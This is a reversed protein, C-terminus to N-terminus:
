HFRATARTRSTASATVADRTPDSRIPRSTRIAAARAMTCSPATARTIAATRSRVQAEHQERDAHEGDGDDRGGAADLGPGVPPPDGDRARPRADDGHQGDDERQLRRREGARRDDGDAPDDDAARHRSVREGGAAAELRQPRISTLDFGAQREAQGARAHDRHHDGAVCGLRDERRDVLGAGDAQDGEGAREDAHRPPPEAASAAVASIRTRTPRSAASVTSATTASRSMASPRIRGSSMRSARGGHGHIGREPDVVFCSPRISGDGGGGGRRRMLASASRDRCSTREGSSRCRSESKSRCISRGSISDAIRGITTATPFAESSEPMEIATLTAEHTTNMMSRTTCMRSIRPYRRDATPM